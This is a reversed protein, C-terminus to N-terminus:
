QAHTQISKGKSSEIIKEGLAELIIVSM